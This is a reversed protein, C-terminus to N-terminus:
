KRYVEKRHAINIVYIILEKQEIQYVVRLDGMRLRYCKPMGILPKINYKSAYPNSALVVLKDDIQIRLKEELNM